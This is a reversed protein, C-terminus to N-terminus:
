GSFVSAALGILCVAIIGCSFAFIVKKLQMNGELARDIKESFAATIIAILIPVLYVLM